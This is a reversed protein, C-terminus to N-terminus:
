VFSERQCKRHQCYRYYNLIWQWPNSLRRYSEVSLVSEEMWEVADWYGTVAHFVEPITGLLLVNNGLLFSGQLDFMLFSECSFNFTYGPLLRCNEYRRRIGWCACACEDPKKMVWSEDNPLRMRGTSGRRSGSDHGKAVVRTCTFWTESGLKRKPDKDQCQDRLLQFGNCNNQFFVLCFTGKLM